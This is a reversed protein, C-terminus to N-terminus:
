KGVKKDYIDIDIEDQNLENIDLAYEETVNNNNIEAEATGDSYVTMSASNRGTKITKLLIDGNTNVSVQYPQGDYYYIKNTKEVKAQVTRSSDFVLCSLISMILIMSLSKRWKLM